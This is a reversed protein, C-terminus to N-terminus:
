RFGDINVHKLYVVLGGPYAASAQRGITMKYIEGKVRFRQGPKLSESKRAVAESVEVPFQFSLLESSQYSVTHDIGFLKVTEKEFQLKVQWGVTKNRDLRDPVREVSSERLRLSVDVVRGLANENIWGQAKPQDFQTWGNIANPRADAPLAAFFSAFTGLPKVREPKDAAAPEPKIEPQEDGEPMNGALRKTADELALKAAALDDELKTVRLKMQALEIKLRDREAKITALEEESTQAFLPATAFLVILCVVLSKDRHM